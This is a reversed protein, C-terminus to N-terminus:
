RGAKRQLEEAKAQLIRAQDATLDPLVNLLKKEMLDVYKNLVTHGAAQASVLMLNELAKRKYENHLDQVTIRVGNFSFPEFDAVELVVHRGSRCFEDFKMKLRKNTEGGRSGAKGPTRVRQIRQCLDEAEGIYVTETGNEAPVVRWRYVTSKRFNAKLYRSTLSPYEYHTGDRDTVPVWRIEMQISTEM